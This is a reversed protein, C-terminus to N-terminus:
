YCLKTIMSGSLGYFLTPRGDYLTALILTFRRKEDKKAQM